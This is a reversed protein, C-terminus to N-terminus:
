GFSHSKEGEIDEGDITRPLMNAWAFRAHPPRRGRSRCTAAAHFDRERRLATVRCRPESHEGFAAEPSVGSSQVRPRTREGSTKRGVKWPRPKQV